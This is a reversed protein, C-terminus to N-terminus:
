PPGSSVEALRARARTAMASRPYAALFQQLARGEGERDGRARRTEALGWAAEEGLAGGQHQATDFLREAGAPDQLQHLRLDAAAIRATQAEPSGPALQLVRRYAAEAERWKRQARLENARQLLAGPDLPPPAARGAPPASARPAVSGTPEDPAVCAPPESAPSSAPPAASPASEPPAASPAPPPAPARLASHLAAAAAGALTLAAAVLLPARWRKWRSAPRIVSASADDPALAADLIRRARADDIPLAPGPREDLAPLPIDDDDTAM